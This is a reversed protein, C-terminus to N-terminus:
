APSTPSTPVGKVQRAFIDASPADSRAQSLLLKLRDLDVADFDSVRGYLSEEPPTSMAATAEQQAVRYLGCFYACFGITLREREWKDPQRGQGEIVSLASGLFELAQFQEAKRRKSQEATM